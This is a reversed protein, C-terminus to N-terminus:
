AIKSPIEKRLRAIFEQDQEAKQSAARMDQARAWSSMCLFLSLLLVMRRM